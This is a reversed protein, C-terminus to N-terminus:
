PSRASTLFASSITSLHREADTSHRRSHDRSHATSNKEGGVAGFLLGVREPHNLSSHQQRIAGKLVNAAAM